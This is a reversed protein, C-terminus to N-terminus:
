VLLILSKGSSCAMSWIRMEYIKDSGKSRAVEKFYGEKMWEFPHLDRFWMIENTTMADVVVQKLAVNKRLQLKEMLESMSSINKSRLIQHLRSEVLFQKKEGIVIGCVEELYTRFQKFTDIEKM